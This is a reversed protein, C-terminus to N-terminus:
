IKLCDKVCFVAVVENSVVFVAPGDAYRLVMENRGDIFQVQV